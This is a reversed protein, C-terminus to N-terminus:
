QERRHVEIGKTVVAVCVGVFLLITLFPLVDRMGARARNGIVFWGFSLCMLGLGSLQVNLSRNARMVTSVITLAIGLMGTVAYGYGQATAFFVFYIFPGGFNSSGVMIISFSFLQMLPHSFFQLPKM